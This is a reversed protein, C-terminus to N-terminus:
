QLGCIIQLNRRKETALGPPEYVDQLNENDKGNEEKKARSEKHPDTPNKQKNTQKTKNKKTMQSLLYKSGGLDGSCGFVTESIRRM